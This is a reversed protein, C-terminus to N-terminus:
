RILLTSFVGAHDSPFLGGVRARGSVSSNALRVRRPTSTMVHDVQHDFDALSGGTLIEADICCSLPNATSRERFGAGLLAQYALRDAGQVTDDDSNLDGLLVIPGRARAPGGAAFLERAQAKRVGPAESELHTDVFRFFGSGRVNADVRAWGREVPVTTGAVTARFLHAFHGGLANRTRVGAGRRALIVDRITLRANLDAGALVPNGTAPNGDSDAPAEIDAETQSIVVRYRKAGRNLRALLLSLYNYKTTTATKAGGLAPGISPTPNTRFWAVEQMGVLDPKKRLIEAGIASMREAPRNADVDRLIEGAKSILGAPNTAALADNLDSGLYLNRTMVKVPTGRTSGAAEGVPVIVGALAVLLAAVWRVAFVVCRM